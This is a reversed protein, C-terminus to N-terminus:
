YLFSLVPPSRINDGRPLCFLFGDILSDSNHSSSILPSMIHQSFLHLPDSLVVFTVFSIDLYIMLLYELTPTTRRLISVLDSSFKETGMVLVSPLWIMFFRMRWVSNFYCTEWPFLYLTFMRFAKYSIWPFHVSWVLSLSSAKSFQFMVLASRSM